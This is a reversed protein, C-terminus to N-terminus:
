RILMVTGKVVRPMGQTEIYTIYYTYAGQPLPQSRYTGDWSASPDDSHFVLLGTRTYISFSYGESPVSSTKPGFTKNTAQDPTFANPM